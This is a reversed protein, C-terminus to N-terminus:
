ATNDFYEFNAQIQAWTLTLLGGNGSGV